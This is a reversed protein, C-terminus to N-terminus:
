RREPQVFTWDVRAQAGFASCRSPMFGATVKVARRTRSPSHNIAKEGSNGSPLPCPWVSASASSDSRLDIRNNISSRRASAVAFKPRPSFSIGSAKAHLPLYENAMKQRMPALQLAFAARVGDVPVGRCSAALGQGPMCFYRVEEGTFDAPSQRNGVRHLRLRGLGRCM